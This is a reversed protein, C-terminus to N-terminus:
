VRGEIALMSAVARLQAMIDGPRGAFSTANAVLGEHTLVDDLAGCARKRANCYATKVVVQEHAHAVEATFLDLTSENWAALVDDPRTFERFRRALEEITVGHAIRERDLRMHRLQRDNPVRDSYSQPRVYCEFSERSLLREATWYILSYPGSGPGGPPLAFEGYALVIREPADRLVPPLWPRRPHALPRRRRPHPVRAYEIQRDIMRTFAELLERLGPTTPELIELAGVIAEITSLSRENPELRIRYRGGGKPALGFHPLERLWPNRRYAGRAQPWTGDLVLLTRPRASSPVDSLLMANPSPYLLGVDPPLETPPATVRGRDVDEVIVRVNELSRKAFRVTGIPHFEERPHQLILVPTKNPIRPVDSCICVVAAKHCRYCEERPERAHIEQITYEKESM